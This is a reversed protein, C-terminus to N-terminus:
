FKASKSNDNLQKLYDEIKKQVEDYEDDDSSM